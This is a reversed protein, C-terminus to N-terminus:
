VVDCTIEKLLWIESRKMLFIRTDRGFQIEAQWCWGLYKSWGPRSQVFACKKLLRVWDTLFENIKQSEYRTVPRDSPNGIKHLFYRAAADVDDARQIFIGLITRQPHPLTTVAQLAYYEPSNHDKFSLPSAPGRINLPTEMTWPLTYLTHQQTFSSRSSKNSLVSHWATNDTRGLFLQNSPM